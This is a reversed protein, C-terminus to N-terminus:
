RRFNTSTTRRSWFRWEVRFDRGRDARARCIMEVSKLFFRWKFGRIKEFEEGIGEMSFGVVELVDALDDVWEKTMRTGNTTLNIKVGYTKCDLLFQHFRKAITVEGWNTGGLNCRYATPMLESLVTDYIEQSVEQDSTRGFVRFPCHLCEINCPGNIDFWFHQPRSKLRTAGDAIERNNLLRNSRKLEAYDRAGIEESIISM